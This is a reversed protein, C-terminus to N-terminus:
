LGLKPLTKFEASDCNAYGALERVIVSWVSPKEINTKRDSDKQREHSETNSNREETKTKSSTERYKQRHRDQREKLTNLINTKRYKRRDREKDKYKMREIKLLICFILIIKMCKVVSDIM